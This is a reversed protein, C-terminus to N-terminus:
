VISIDKPHLIYMSNQAFIHESFILIYVKIKTNLSIFFVFIIFFFCKQSRLRWNSLERWNMKTWQQIYAGELKKWGNKEKAVRMWSKGAVIKLDTWRKQPRGVSNRATELNIDEPTWRGPKQSLVHGVWQWELRAMRDMVDTTKTKNQIDNKRIWDRLSMGLVAREM